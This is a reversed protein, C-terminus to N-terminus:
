TVSIRAQTDGCFQRTDGACKKAECAASQLPSMSSPVEAFCSCQNGDRVAAFRRGNEHCHLLCSAPTLESLTRDFGQGPPTVSFDYCGLNIPVDLLVGWNFVLGTGSDGLEFETAIEKNLIDRAHGMVEYKEGLDGDKAGDDDIQVNDRYFFFKHTRLAGSRTAIRGNPDLYHPVGGMHVMVSPDLAEVYEATIGLPLDAETVKSTVKMRSGAGASRCDFFLPETFGTKRRHKLDDDVHHGISDCDGTM